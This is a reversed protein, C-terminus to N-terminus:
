KILRFVDDRDQLVRILFYMKFLEFDVVRRGNKDRYLPEVMKSYYAGIYHKYYFRQQHNM